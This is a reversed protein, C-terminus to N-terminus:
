RVRFPSAAMMADFERARESTPLVEDTDEYYEWTAYVGPTEAVSIRWVGERELTVEAEAFLATIAERGETGSVASMYPTVLKSLVADPSYQSEPAAQMASCGMLLAVVLILCLARM